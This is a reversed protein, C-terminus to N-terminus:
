KMKRWIIAITLLGLVLAVAGSLGSAATMEPSADSCQAGLLLFAAMFVAGQARETLKM